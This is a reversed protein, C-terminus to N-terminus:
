EKKKGGELFIWKIAVIGLLALIISLRDPTWTFGLDAIAKVVKAVMDNLLAIAVGIWVLIGPLTSNMDKLREILKEM